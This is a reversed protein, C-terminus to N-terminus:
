PLRLPSLPSPSPLSPPSSARRHFAAGTLTSRRPPIRRSVSSVTVSNWCLDGDGSVPLRIQFNVISLGTYQRGITALLQGLGRKPRCFPCVSAVRSWDSVRGRGKRAARWVHSLPSRTISTSIKLPHLRRDSQYADVPANPGSGPVLFWRNGMPPGAMEYQFVM